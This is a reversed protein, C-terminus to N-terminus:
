LMSLGFDGTTHIMRRVVQWEDPGFSHPPAEKEIMEM